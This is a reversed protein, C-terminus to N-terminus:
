HNQLGSKLLKTAQFQDYPLIRVVSILSVRMVRNLIVIKMSENKRLEQNGKDQEVKEEKIPIFYICVIINTESACYIVGYNYVNYVQQALM